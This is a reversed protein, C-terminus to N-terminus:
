HHYDSIAYTPTFGVIDCGSYGYPFTKALLPHQSM